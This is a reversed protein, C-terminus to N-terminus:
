PSPSASGGHPRAFRSDRRLGFGSSSAFLRPQVVSERCSSSEDDDGSQDPHGWSMTHHFRSPRLPEVDVARVNARFACEREQM